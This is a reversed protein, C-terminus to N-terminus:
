SIPSIMRSSKRHPPLIVKDYVGAESGTDQTQCRLTAPRQERFQPATRAESHRWSGRCFSLGVGTPRQLMIKAKQHSSFSSNKTSDRTDLGNGKKGHLRVCGREGECIKGQALRFDCPYRCEEFTHVRVDIEGERLLPMRLEMGRLTSATWEVGIDEETDREQLLEEPEAIRLHLLVDM